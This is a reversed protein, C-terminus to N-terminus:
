APTQALLSTLILHAFRYGQRSERYCHTKGRRRLRRDDDRCDM